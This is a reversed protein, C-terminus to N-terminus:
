PAPVSALINNMSNEPRIFRPNKGNRNAYLHRPCVSQQADRYSAVLRPCTSAAAPSNRHAKIVIVCTRHNTQEVSARAVKEMACCAKSMDHHLSDLLKAKLSLHDYEGAQMARAFVLGNATSCTLICRQGKSANGSRGM